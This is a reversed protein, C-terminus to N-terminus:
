VYKSTHIYTGKIAALPSRDYLIEILRYCSSQLFIFSNFIEIEEKTNKLVKPPDDQIYDFIKKITSINELQSPIKLNSWDQIIIIRTCTYTFMFM